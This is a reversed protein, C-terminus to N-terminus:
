TELDIREALALLAKQENEAKGDIVYELLLHLLKGLKPGPPFGNQRLMEGTVALQGVTVCHDERVIQEIQACVTEAEGLHRKLAALKLAADKGIRGALRRADPLSAPLPEALYTLLTELLQRTKKDTRLALATKEALAAPSGDADAHYLLWALRVSVDPELTKPIPVPRLKLHLIAELIPQFQLCVEGAYVGILLGSLEKWIREPAIHELLDRLEMAAKATEAELTFGLRAAFRLGRLIRLADERFRRMPDGVCRILGDVLDKRGEFLDIVEGDSRCAMANITFDRRSLDEELTRTFTVEDPRRFDTYSGDVRYTTLEIPAGDWIVTITGHKVGTPITREFLSMTEEPFASTCMDWDNPPNGLLSDRVCGGVACAEFGAAEMVAMLQRISEPVAIKM